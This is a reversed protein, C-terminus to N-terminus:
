QDYHNWADMDGEFGDQFSNNKLDQQDQYERSNFHDSFNIANDIVGQQYEYEKLSNHVKIYLFELNEPYVNKIQKLGELKGLIFYWDNM